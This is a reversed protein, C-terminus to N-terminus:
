DDWGCKNGNIKYYVDRKLIEIDDRGLLALETSKVFLQGCRDCFLVRGAAATKGKEWFNHGCSTKANNPDILIELFEPKTIVIIHPITTQVVVGKKIREPYKWQVDFSSSKTINNNKLLGYECLVRGYMNPIHADFPTNIKVKMGKKLDNECIPKRTRYNIRM